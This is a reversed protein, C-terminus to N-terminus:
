QRQKTIWTMAAPSLASKKTAGCHPTFNPQGRYLISINKSSFYEKIEGIKAVVDFYDDCTIVPTTYDNVSFSKYDEFRFHQIPFNIIEVTTNKAFLDIIERRWLVFDQVIM